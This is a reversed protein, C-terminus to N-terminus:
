KNAKNRTRHAKAGKGKAADAVGRKSSGHERAVSKREGSSKSSYNAKSHHQALRPQQVASQKRATQGPRYSSQKRSSTERHVQGSDHTRPSTKM